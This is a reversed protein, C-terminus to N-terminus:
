LRVNNVRFGANEPKNLFKAFETPDETIGKAHLDLYVSTPMSAVKTNNKLGGTKSFDKAEEANAAMVSAVTKHYVVQKAVNGDRYVYTATDATESVLQRYGDPLDALTMAQYREFDM